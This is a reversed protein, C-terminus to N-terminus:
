SNVHVVGVVDGDSGLATILQHEGLTYSVSLTNILLTLSECVLPHVHQSLRTECVQTDLTDPSVQRLTWQTNVERGVHGINHFYWVFRGHESECVGDCEILEDGLHLGVKLHAAIENLCLANLQGGLNNALDAVNKGEGVGSVVSVSEGVSGLMVHTLNFHEHVGGDLVVGIPAHAVGSNVVVVTYRSHVQVIVLNSLDTILKHTDKVATPLRVGGFGTEVSDDVFEAVCESVAYKLLVKCPVDTIVLYNMVEHVTVFERFKCLEYFGLKETKSIRPNKQKKCKLM